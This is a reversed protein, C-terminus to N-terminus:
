SEPARLVMSRIRQVYREYVARGKEASALSPRGFSGSSDAPPTPMRGRVYRRYQRAGLPEDEILGRRVRGPDLHLLLSTELEGAHEWEAPGEILDSVDIAYLDVVTTTSSQTLAMLLADLHPEYRHATLVIFETVGHDEWGALLENVARHLTKRRLSASGPFKRSSPGNVGYPFTPARLIGMSESLDTALREAIYTNTGLPLHPGHQALAGVPFILRSDRELIEAAEPWSLEELAYSRVSREGDASARTPTPTPDQTM